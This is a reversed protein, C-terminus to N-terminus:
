KESQSRRGSGVSPTESSGPSTRLGEFEDGLETVEDEGEGLGAAGGGPLEAAISEFTINNESLLGEYKRLREVLDREQLRKKRRRPPLPPVVRCEVRAKVCNACPKSKDCRVKRQQCLVCSTGRTLKVAMDPHQPPLGPVPHEPAPHDRAGPPPDPGPLRAAPVHPQSGPM